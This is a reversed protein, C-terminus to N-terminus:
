ESFAKVLSSGLNKKSLLQDLKALDCKLQSLKKKEKETLFSNYVDINMYEKPLLNLNHELLHKATLNTQRRKLIGENAIDQVAYFTKKADNSRNYEFYSREFNGNRELDQLDTLYYKNKKTKNWEKTFEELKMIEDYKIKYEKDDKILVSKAKEFIDNFGYDVDSEACYKIIKFIEEARNTVSEDLPFNADFDIIQCNKSDDRLEDGIMEDDFEEAEAWVRFKGRGKEDFYTEGREEYYKGLEEDIKKLLVDSMNIAGM